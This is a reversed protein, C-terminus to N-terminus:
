PQRKRLARLRRKHYRLYRWGRKPKPPGAMIARALTEPTAGEIPLEPLELVVPRGPRRKENEAM